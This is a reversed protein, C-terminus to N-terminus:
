ARPRGFGAPGGVLSMGGTIGADMAPRTSNAERRAGEAPADTEEASIGRAWPLFAAALGRGVRALRDSTGGPVYPSEEGTRIREARTFM